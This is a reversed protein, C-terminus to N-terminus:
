RHVERGTERALAKLKKVLAQRARHLRSEVTGVSCGLAGAIEEYSMGDIERLSLVVRHKEKLSSLAARVAAGVQASGLREEPGPEESAIQDLLAGLGEGVPQDLSDVPRRHRQRLRDGCVNRAIGCIWGLAAARDRLQGLGVWVRTYTEQVVDEAESEAGLKRFALRYVTRHTAEVIRGFAAEDGQAARGSLTELDEPQRGDDM